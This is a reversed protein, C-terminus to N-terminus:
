WKSLFARTTVFRQSRDWCPKDQVVSDSGRGGRAGVRRGPGLLESTLLASWRATRVETKMYGGPPTDMRHPSHLDHRSAIAQQGPKHSLWRTEMAQAGRQGQGEMRAAGEGM